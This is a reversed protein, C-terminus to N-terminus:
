NLIDMSRLLRLFEETDAVATERDVEFESWLLRALAQPSDATELNSWLFNATENLTFLGPYRRAADGTPVLFHDGAITRPVFEYLLKM